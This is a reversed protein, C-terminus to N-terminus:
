TINNNIHTLYIDFCEIPLVIKINKHKKLKKLHEDGSIIYGANATKACELIMNDDPDDKIVNLKINPKVLESFKKFNKIIFNIQEKSVRKKNLM